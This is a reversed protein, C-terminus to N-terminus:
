NPEAKTLLKLYEEHLYFIEAQVGTLAPQNGAEVPRESVHRITVRSKGPETQFFTQTLIAAATEKSV